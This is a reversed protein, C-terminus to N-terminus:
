LEMGEIAKDFINDSIFQGGFRYAKERFDNLRQDDQLVFSIAKAVSDNNDDVIVGSGSDIIAQHNIYAKTTIIPLGLLAYLKPKGTDACKANGELEYLALGLASRSLLELMQNEDKIFGLFNFHKDLHAKAVIGKLEDLYPGQGIITATVQPFEKLVEPLAKVLRQLGQNSSVSGVFGIDWRKIEAFPRFKRLHRSYGLPVICGRYATKDIQSQEKRSEPIKESLDWIYDATKITFRDVWNLFRVFLSNFNLKKDPHYYDICYYVLKKVIGLKKLFAGWLGFSHSVGFYIDYKNNLKLLCYCVSLWNVIFVLLVLPQRHWRYDKIRFNPIKFDKVKRGQKYVRCSSLNEKLFCSSISIVTLTGAKDKLYDELTETRSTFALGTLLIDSDSLRLTNQRNM